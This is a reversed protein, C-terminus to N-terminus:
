KLSSSASYGWIGVKDYGSANTCVIKSNSVNKDRLIYTKSSVGCKCKCINSTKSTNVVLKSQGNKNYSYTVKVTGVTATKITKSNQVDYRTINQKGYTIKKSNKKQTATRTIKQLKVTKQGNLYLYVDKTETWTKTGKGNVKINNKKFSDSKVVYNFKYTRGKGKVTTTVNQKYGTVTVQTHKGSCSYYNTSAPKKTKCYNCCYTIKGNSTSVGGSVGSFTTSAEAPLNLAITGGALVTSAILSCAVAKKVIKNM